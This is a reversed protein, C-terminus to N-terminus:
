RPLGFQRDYDRLQRQLIREVELLTTAADHLGEHSESVLKESVVGPHSASALSVVGDSPGALLRTHAVGIISYLQVCPAVPLHEMAVLLPHDPKLLDISSPVGRSIWPAFVGPNDAIVRRHREDAETTAKAALSAFRGIGRNALSSGRHPTGIFIVHRIFPQPTFFFVERMRERDADSAQIQDLPRNAVLNWLDNGSETIQLKAVLGGMSHGILVMQQAAPDEAAGPSTAIAAQLERRLTAASVLFPMGTPYRFAWVQYRERFWDQARLANGMTIWTTPDSLLGHVFVLPIKGPQYPELMVLQAASQEANPRLFERVPQNPAESVTWALPATLDAALSWHKPMGALHTCHAPNYFELVLEEAPLNDREVINTAGLGCRTRLVATAAFPHVKRYFAENECRRRRVVLPVGIGDTQTSKAHKSLQYEGVLEMDNFDEATWAFGHLEVPITLPQNRHVVHLGTGPDLRGHRQATVLLKALSAHYTQAEHLLDNLAIQDGLRAVHQWHECTAAFYLDVCAPDHAAELMSAQRALESTTPENSLPRSAASRHCPVTDASHIVEAYHCEGSSWKARNGFLKCGSFFALSAVLGFAVLPRLFQGGRM